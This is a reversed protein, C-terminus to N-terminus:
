ESDPKFVFIITLVVVSLGLTWEALQTWNM